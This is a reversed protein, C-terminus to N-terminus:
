HFPETFSDNPKLHVQEHAYDFVINFRRLADHGIVADAAPQRSRVAAAVLNVRVDTLTFPGIRVTSVRGKQGRVDGSMGRGTTSDGTLLPPNFVNTDRELLEIAHRSAFDIYARLSVPEEDVTAVGIALWPIKNERFTLDLSVWGDEPAFTRADYLIMRNEDYDIEVAYHGLLTYGIVGDTPFGRFTESTLMTIRQGEIRLPGVFFTGAEDSLGHSVGGDGAGRMQVRALQAFATLDIGATDYLLIGDYPMGTDLVLGFPGSSGVTVPVVTRDRGLEILFEAVVRNQAPLSGPSCPTLLVFPLVLGMVRM